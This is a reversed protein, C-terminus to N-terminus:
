RSGNLPMVANRLWECWLQPNPDKQYPIGLHTHACNSPGLYVGMFWRGMGHRDIFSQSLRSIVESECSGFGVWVGAAGGPVDNTTWWKARWIKSGFLVTDNTIYATGTTWDPVGSCNEFQLSVPALSPKETSSVLAATSMSTTGSVPAWDGMPNGSPKNGSYWKAEWIYRDYSVRNGGMYGTGPVWQPASCNPYVFPAGCSAGGKMADVIGGDIRDNGYAQSVDWFMVGGFSPFSQRTELVIQELTQLPVYGGGAASQSAPAGIYIKVDPNPSVHTAWYDWTGFNWQSPKDYAQLGCPNNYFQVYIADFPIVDLTEQLNADPFVCQPAATLYYKKTSGNYRELLKTLFASYYTPKGGEIDLDIGDLVADGFPRTNSTGGLFLNWITDAFEIAQTDSLFGVSGTAGGLSLTIAKGREQCYKIDESVADCKMLDTGPFVTDGPGHCINALNISPLGGVSFFTTLFSIPIISTINDDCYFRLPKQWEDIDASNAAGYSNQGWYNAINNNCGNQFGNVGITSCIFLLTYFLRM